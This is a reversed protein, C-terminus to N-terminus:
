LLRKKVFKVRFVLSVALLVAEQTEPLWASNMAERESIMLTLTSLLLGELLPTQDLLLFRAILSPSPPLEMM